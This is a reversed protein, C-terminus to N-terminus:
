LIDPVTSITPTAVLLSSDFVDGLVQLDVIQQPLLGIMNSGTSSAYDWLWYRNLEDHSESGLGYSIPACIRDLVGNDAKSYFRVSVKKKESIAALFQEHKAIM